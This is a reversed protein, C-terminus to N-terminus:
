NSGDDEFAMEGSVNRIEWNDMNQDSDFGTGMWIGDSSTIKVFKESYIIEKKMDWFLQETNLIENKQSIAEVDNNLEWLDKKEYLIAMNAKIQGKVTGDTNYMIVNIGKPFDTYPEDAYPYQLLEPTIMRVTVKGSDTIVSELDKMILSPQEARNVIAQIEEPKNSSCSTAFVYVALLISSSASFINHITNKFYPKM